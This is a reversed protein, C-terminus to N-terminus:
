PASSETMHFLTVYKPSQALQAFTTPLSHDGRQKRVRRATFPAAARSPLIDSMGSSDRRAASRRPAPATAPAALAQANPAKTSGVSVGASGSGTSGALAAVARGVRTEPENMEAARPPTNVLQIM